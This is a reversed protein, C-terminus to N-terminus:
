HSDRRLRLSLVNSGVGSPNFTERLVPVGDWCLKRGGAEVVLTVDHESRLIVDSHARLQLDSLRHVHILADRWDRPVDAALM